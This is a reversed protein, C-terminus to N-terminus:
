PGGAILKRVYDFIEPPAKSLTDISAMVDAASVPNVEVGIKAAEALYQPDRHTAAFAEQLAHARDEPIDPPAAFPWAMTLLPTETFEILARASDTTALERATPVDPLDPHRTVRAYQVIVRYDSDPKLWSPRSARVASLEVMRGNIEGREMGLYLATGDRYGLILKLNLGLTDRLIKPVDSSSAGPATGGMVLEPGGPRRVDEISQVPGNKRVMLIYADNAFSSSSGLWTFKRPDFRVNANQGLLGLMPMNRIVLGFTTGDKPAVSYLYNVELLGGAGPMNRVIVTPHGPIYKGIHRALLRSFIDFGAGADAGVTLTVTKGKYFEEVTEANVRPATLAVVALCM